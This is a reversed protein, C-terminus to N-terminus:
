EEMSEYNESAGSESEDEVEDGAHEKVQEKVQERVRERIGQIDFRIVEVYYKRIALRQDMLTKFMGRITQMNDKFAGEDGCAASQHNELEAIFNTYAQAYDVIMGDLVALHEELDATDIGKDKLSAVIEELKTKLLNYKEVHNAKNEQFRAIKTAIRNATNECKQERRDEKNAQIEDKKDQILEKKAPDPGQGTNSQANTNKALVFPATFILLSFFLILSLTTKKM